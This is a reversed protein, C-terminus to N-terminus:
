SCRALAAAADAARDLEDETNLYHVSARVLDGLGRAPLDLQGSTVPSVMTNIRQASLRRQVESSHVGDVTFTVIGCRRLGKDHVAVGDLARLRERLGEGLAVVRDEIADIGWGLAHDIAAGLGLLGAVNREWTEFRRAALAVEYRDPATWTASRVELFPPELDDALERRVYLAGTGRPGRLYKRGTLCLVDCGLEGVDLALQGASQTADLLFPVGAARAVRGVEAAPNVLGGNTPVHTLAILRVRDDIRRALASVDLQGHEDDDVVELTVGRRAAVQLEAIVNSVYEARGILIRDGPRFRFSYFAMDWARTANEALAIEDPAAGLLRATSRYVAELRDRAEDAAEYGGIEAERRLHSVVTGLVPEPMLSAGAHNLHLVRACGPTLARAREVDLM